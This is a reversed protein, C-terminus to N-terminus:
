YKSKFRFGYKNGGITKIKNSKPVSHTPKFSQKEEVIKECNYLQSYTKYPSKITTNM